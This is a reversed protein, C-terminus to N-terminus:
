EYAMYKVFEKGLPHPSRNVATNLLQDSRFSSAAIIPEGGPVQTLYYQQTEKKPRGGQFL